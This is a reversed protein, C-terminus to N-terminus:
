NAKVREVSIMKLPNKMNERDREKYSVVVGKDVYYARYDNTGRLSRDPAGLKKEVDERTDTVKLGLPLEIDPDLIDTKFFIAKLIDDKTVSLEVGKSDYIYYNGLDYTDDYEYDSGLTKLFVKVEDDSINKGILNHYEITTLSFLLVLFILLYKM